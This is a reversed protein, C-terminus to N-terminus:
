HVAPCEPCILYWLSVALTFTTYPGPSVDCGTTHPCLHFTSVAFQLVLHTLEMVILLRRTATSSLLNIAYSTCDFMVMSVLAAVHCGAFINYILIHM